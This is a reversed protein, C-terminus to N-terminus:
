DKGCDDGGMQDHALIARDLEFAFLRRLIVFCDILFNFARSSEISISGQSQPASRGEGTRGRSTQETM